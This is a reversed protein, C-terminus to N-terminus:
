NYDEINQAGNWRRVPDPEDKDDAVGVLVEGGDANAFAVAVRQLKAGKIAAAKRDFFHDEKRKSLELADAASIVKTHMNLAGIYPVALFQRPVTAPIVLLFRPFRLTELQNPARGTRRNQGSEERCSACVFSVRVHQHRDAMRHLCRDQSVP